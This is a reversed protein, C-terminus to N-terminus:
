VEITDGIFLSICQKGYIKYITLFGKKSSCHMPVVVSFYQSLLHSFKQLFEHDADSLHFGGILMYFKESATIQQAKKITALIGRHCCGCVIVWGKDTKILLAQEDLIMEQKFGSPTWNYFAGPPIFEESEEDLPIEGSLIMGPAIEVPKTNFCLEVGSKEILLHSVPASVNRILDKSDRSFKEEFINPHAYLKKINFALLSSLGGTHEKHGHSIIVGDLSTLDIGLNSANLLLTEGSGTDFLFKKGEYEIYLALGHEALLYPKEVWNNVVATICLQSMKTDEM